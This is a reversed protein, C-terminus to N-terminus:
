AGVEDGEPHARRGEAEVRDPRVAVQQDGALAHGALLVDLRRQQQGLEHDAGLAALVTLTVISREGRSLGPRTWIDGWPFRNILAQFPASFDTASARARDVHADGLM